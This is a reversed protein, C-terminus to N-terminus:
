FLITPIRLMVVCRCSSAVRGPSPAMVLVPIVHNRFSWDFPEKTKISKIKATAKDNGHIATIIAKGDAVAKVQGAKDVTVAAPNSSTFKVKATLDGEIKDGTKGLVLLRQSAHPGSLVVDAPLIKIEAGFIPFSFTVGIILSLKYM